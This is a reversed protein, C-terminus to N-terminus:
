ALPLTIELAAAHRSDNFWKGRDIPPRFHCSHPLRGISSLM